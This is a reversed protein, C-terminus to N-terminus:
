KIITIFGNLTVHFAFVFFPKGGVHRQKVLLYAGLRPSEVCLM